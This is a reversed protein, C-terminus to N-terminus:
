VLETNPVKCSASECEALGHARRRNELGAPPGAAGLCQMQDLYALNSATSYTCLNCTCPENNVDQFM